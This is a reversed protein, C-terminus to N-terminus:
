LHDPIVSAAKSPIVVVNDETWDSSRRRRLRGESGVGMMIPCERSFSKRAMLSAYGRHM